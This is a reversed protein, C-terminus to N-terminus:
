RSPLLCSGCRLLSVPIPTLGATRGPLQLDMVDDRKALTAVLVVELVQDREALLAMRRYPPLTM